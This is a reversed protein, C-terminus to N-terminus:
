GAGSRWRQTRRTHPNCTAIMRRQPRLCRRYCDRQPVLRSFSGSGIPASRGCAARHHRDREHRRTPFGLRVRDTDTADRAAAATSIRGPPMTRPTAPPAGLMASLGVLQIPAM